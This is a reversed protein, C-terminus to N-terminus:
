QTLVASARVQGVCRQEEVQATESDFERTNDGGSTAISRPCSTAVCLEASLRHIIMWPLTRSM